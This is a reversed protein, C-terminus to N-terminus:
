KDDVDNTPDGTEDAADAEDVSKDSTAANGENAENGENGENGEEFRREPADEDRPLTEEKQDTLREYVTTARDTIRRHLTRHTLEGGHYSVYGTLCALLILSFKWFGGAGYPDRRRSGSAVLALLFALVAVLIGGWRHIDISRDFDFRNWEGDGNIQAMSWGTVCALIAMWAGLWLCYYAADSMPSEGRFGFLAFLAGGMILGVPFHVLVVHVLGVLEWVLQGTGDIRDATPPTKIDKSPDTEVAPPPEVQPDDSAKAVDNADAVPPVPETEPVYVILVGEPWEAGEDIWLRIKEIEDGPLPGGEDPPPMMVEDDDSSVYDFLDSYKSQGPDLYNSVQDPDDIRFDGEQEAPGHCRVCRAEFIPKIDNAFDITADM